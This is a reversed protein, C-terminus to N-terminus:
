PVIQTAGNGLIPLKEERTLGVVIGAVVAGAIVGFVPLAHDKTWFGKDKDGVVVVNSGADNNGAVVASISTSGKARGATFPVTVVGKEDSRASFTKGAQGNVTFLGAFQGDEANLTFVVPVGPIAKGTRDTVVFRLDQSTGSKVNHLYGAKDARVCLM